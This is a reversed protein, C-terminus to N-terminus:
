GILIVGGAMLPVAVFLFVGIGTLVRGGGADVSGVEPGKGL